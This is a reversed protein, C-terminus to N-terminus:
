GKSRLDEDRRIQRLVDRVVKLRRVLTTEHLGVALRIVEELEEDVYALIQARAPPVAMQAILDHNREFREEDRSPLIPEQALNSSM